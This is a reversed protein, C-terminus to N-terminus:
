PLLTSNFQNSPWNLTVDYARLDTETTLGDINVYHQQEANFLGEIYQTVFGAMEVLTDYNVNVFTGDKFKWNVTDATTDLIGLQFSHITNALNNRGVLSTDLLYQTTGGSGIIIIGDNELQMRKQHVNNKVFNRIEDLTFAPDPVNGASIWAQVAQYDSNAPDIPVFVANNVLYGTLENTSIDRIEKVSTIQIGYEM